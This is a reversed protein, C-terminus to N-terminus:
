RLTTVTATGRGQNQTARVQNGRTEVLLCNTGTETTGIILNRCVFGQHWQWRGRMAQGDWDGIVRGDSHWTVHGRGEAVQLRDVLRARFDAESTVRSWADAATASLTLVATVVVLLRFM